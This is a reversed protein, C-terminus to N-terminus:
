LDQEGEFKVGMLLPKEGIRSLKNVFIDKDSQPKVLIVHTGTLKACLLDTYIQDGIICTEQRTYGRKKIEKLANGWWPKLAHDVAEIGLNKGSQQVAQTHFNNSFLVLEIGAAKIASIWTKVSLPAVSTDRPVLTNDRDVLIFKIGREMFWTPSILEVHAVYRDAKIIPM